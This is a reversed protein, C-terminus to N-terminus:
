GFHGAQILAQLVHRVTPSLPRRNADLLQEHTLWQTVTGELSEQNAELTLRFIRFNYRNWQGERDSQHYPSIEAPLETLGTVTCGLWEAAARAAADIWAEERQAPPINPDQWRRRKTMPLTFAMWKPNYVALIQNGRVIVSVAVEVEPFNVQEAM